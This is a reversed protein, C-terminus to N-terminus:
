LGLTWTVVVHKLREVAYNTNSYYSDYYRLRRTEWAVDFIGIPLRIRLGATFAEAAPGKDPFANGDPVFVQGLRRYGALLSLWAFPSYAAGFALDEQDVWSPHVTDQLAPSFRGKSYPVKRYDFTLELPDLPLLAFGFSFSAPVRLEQEGTLNHGASALVSISDLAYNWSRKATYPLTLVTGMRLRSTRLLAGVALTAASFSSRGSVGVRLTDYSFRMRNDKALDFWGVKNLSQRDDTDGWLRTASLGLHLWTTLESAIAVRAEKLKGERQRAYQFWNVRLTDTSVRKAVGYADYGIHPDLYTDNRDYDLLTNGIGYSAAAVFRKGGLSLPIASALQNLTQGDATRKWDAAKESFPDLGLEPESVVYASDRQEIWIEYDWRGNNAPDPIYLGELYLPLTIFMRDPRYVQNEWWSKSYFEATTSVQIQQLSALGAANYFLCGIDGQAATFAGGVALGRAYLENHGAFGQFSLQDGRHQAWVAGSFTAILGVLFARGMRRM